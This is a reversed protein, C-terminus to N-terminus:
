IFIEFVLILFAVLIFSLAITKITILVKDNDPIDNKKRIVRTIRKALVAAAVGLIAFCIGVIVDVLQLREWLSTFFNSTNNLLSIM